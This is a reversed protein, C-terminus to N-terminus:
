AAQRKFFTVLASPRAVLYLGIAISVIPSGIRGLVSMSWVENFALVSILPNALSVLGEVVFYVGALQTNRDM